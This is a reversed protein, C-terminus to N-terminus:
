PAPMTARSAAQGAQGAQGVQVDAICAATVEAGTMRLWRAIRRRYRMPPVIIGREWRNYTPVSVGLDPGAQRQTLGRATREAHLLEGLTM